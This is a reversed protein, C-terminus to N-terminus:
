AGKLQGAVHNAIALCATLGPSEIGYLGIYGEIGHDSPGHIAFDAAEETPGSIKPRFGAYDPMLSGEQLDPWYTRIAQYFSKSREEYVRSDMQETWEVDPGFKAQGALDLTLHVGLGGPEPVPYILHKFPAKGALQFYSGKALYAKPLHYSRCTDKQEQHMIKALKIAGHGAANILNKCALTFPTAGGTAVQFGNPRTEIKLVPTNLCLMAGKAEADGLLALMLAHSDIIGTLPSYLAGFSKLAPEMAQAQSKSLCQLDQVGNDQAKSRIAHLNSMQDMSTAVILKGIKQCGINHSQCYDYLLDRGAVCLRAKLSGKPYYIGAHIVESNRASTQSGIQDEAEIIIVDHGLQSLKRAIALGVIGAGIVITECSESM